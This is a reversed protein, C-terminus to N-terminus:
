RAVTSASARPCRRTRTSLATYSEVDTMVCAARTSEKVAGLRGLNEVLKGVMERPVFKGLIEDLAASDGRVDISKRVFGVAFRAPAAIGIPLFTAAWVNPHRFLVLTAALYGLLALCAIAAGLLTSMTYRRLASAGGAVFAILARGWPPTARLSSGDLLNGLATAAIQVGSWQHSGWPYVTSFKDLLEWRPDDAFGVFVVKGRLGFPDPSQPSHTTALVEAISLTRIAGAGYYHLFREDSGAYLAVLRRVRPDLREHRLAEPRESFPRSIARIRLMQLHLAGGRILEDASGPLDQAAEPFLPRMLDILQPTAELSHAQLALAPLTPAAFDGRLVTWFKDCREDQLNPLSMVARGAAASAIEPSIPVPGQIVVTGDPTEAGALPEVMLVNGLARMAAALERDESAHLDSRPRFTIDLAVV